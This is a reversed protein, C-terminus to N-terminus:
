KCVQLGAQFYKVLKQFYNTVINGTQFTFVPRYKSLLKELAVIPHNTILRAFMIQISNFYSAKKHIADIILAGFIIQNM